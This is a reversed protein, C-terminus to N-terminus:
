EQNLEAIPLAGAGTNHLSKWDAFGALTSNVTEVSVTVISMELDSAPRWQVGGSAVAACRRARGTAGSWAAASHAAVERRVEDLEREVVPVTLAPWGQVLQTELEHLPSSASAVLLVVRHGPIFPQLVDISAEFIEAARRNLIEAVVLTVIEDGSTGLELNVVLASEGGAAAERTRLVPDVSRSTAVVEPLEESAWFKHLAETAAEGDEAVMGLALNGPRLLSAPSLQTGEAVGLFGAMLRLARRRASGGEALVPKRDDAVRGLAAQLVEGLQAFDGAPLALELQPPNEDVWVWGPRHEDDRLERALRSLVTAALEYDLDPVVVPRMCLTALSAGTRELVAATLGSEFHVVQPPAAFRPRYTRPPLVVVVNGPHRPLWQQAAARVSELTVGEVAFLFERVAEAGGELWLELLFRGADPHRELFARRQVLLRRAATDVREPRLGPAEAIRALGLRLRRLAIDAMESDTRAELLGLDGDTRSRVGKLEEDMLEPLLSWLVEVTSRSPDAHPPLHVELRIEADSGPRGLRREFRGEVENEPVLHPRPAPPRDALVRNLVGRIEPVPAGGVVILVSPAADEVEGSLATELDAILTLDGSIVVTFSVDGDSMAPWVVTTVDALPEAIVLLESGNGLRESYLAQAALPRVVSAAVMLLCLFCQLCAGQVKMAPTM